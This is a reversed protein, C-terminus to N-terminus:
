LDHETICWCESGYFLTSLVCSQYLKLKTRRSYVTSRWVPKLRFFARRAKNIRNKIDVDTGGDECIISGLYTFTDTTQLKEHDIYISVPNRQNIVMMKSKNNNIKLGLKHSIDNLKSINEQLDQRTHSLLAVDDAFDIDELFSFMTWRIGRTPREMTKKMVWDIVINFLVASMVCGQRVGSKVKFAIDSQGM